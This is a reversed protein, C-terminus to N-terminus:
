YYENIIMEALYSFPLQILLNQSMIKCGDWVYANDKFGITLYREEFSWPITLFLVCDNQCGRFLICPFAGWSDIEDLWPSDRNSELM